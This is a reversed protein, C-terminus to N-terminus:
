GDESSEDDSESQLLDRSCYTESGSSGGDNGGNSSNNGRAAINLDSVGSVLEKSKM